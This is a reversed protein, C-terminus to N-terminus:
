KELVSEEKSENRNKLEWEWYFKKEVLASICSKNLM